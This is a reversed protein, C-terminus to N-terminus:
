VGGLQNAIALLAEENAKTATADLPQLDFRYDTSDSLWSLSVLVKGGASRMTKLTAPRGRVEANLWERVVTISGGTEKFESEDLRVTGLGAVDWTRTVGSWRGDKIGGGTAVDLLRAGDLRSGKVSLPEYQLHPRAETVSGYSRDLANLSRRSRRKGTTVANRLDPVPVDSTYSGLRAQEELEHAVKEAALGMFPSDALDVVHVGPSADMKSLDIGKAQADRSMSPSVLSAASVVEGPPPDQALAAACPLCACAFVIYRKITM